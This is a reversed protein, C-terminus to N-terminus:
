LILCGGKEWYAYLNKHKKKKAARVWKIKQETHKRKNDEIHMHHM